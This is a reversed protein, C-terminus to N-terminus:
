ADPGRGRRAARGARGGRRPRRAVRRRGRGLRRRRADLGPRTARGLPPRRRRRRARSWGPGRRGARGGRPGRGCRQREAPHRGRPRTRRRRRRGHRTRGTGLVGAGGPVPSAAASGRPGRGGRAPPGAGDHRARRIAPRVAAEGPGIGAEAPMGTTGPRAARALVSRAWVWGSATLVVGVAAVARSAGSAYLRDPGFGVLAGGVPGVLPLATLLRMSTRPGAVAVAARQRAALRERVAGAAAATVEVAPAGAEEALRWAAVLVALDRRAGPRTGPPPDLCASVPVGVAAAEELREVLWPCGRLVGPSRAAALAAERLGLGADLGVAVVEGLDAVWRGDDVTRGQRGGPLLRRWSRRGAVDEVPGSARGSEGTRRRRRDLRESGARSRSPWMLVALVALLVALATLGNSTM